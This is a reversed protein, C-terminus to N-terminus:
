AIAGYRWCLAATQVLQIPRRSSPDVKKAGIMPKLQDSQLILEVHDEEADSPRRRRRIVVAVLQVRRTTAGM